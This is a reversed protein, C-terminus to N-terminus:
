ERNEGRLAQSLLAEIRAEDIRKADIEVSSGNEGEVRIHVDSRRPQSLWTKLSSALVSLAGGSGLLVVVTDMAAGLEGEEPAPGALRVRGALEPEGKLWDNLSELHTVSAQGPLSIRAKM